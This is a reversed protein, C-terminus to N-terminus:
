IRSSSLYDALRQGATALPGDNVIVLDAQLGAFQGNRALRDTIAGVADRGRQALRLALLDPSATIHVVRVRPSAVIGNVHARSGNVVVTGGAEVVDAYHRAIGYGFGHAHWHWCLEGSEVLNSFAAPTVADHESGVQVSRTVMRRSFVLGAQEGLAQRASDIVSDKGSGSPGCIFVWFGKM